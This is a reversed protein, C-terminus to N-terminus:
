NFTNKENKLNILFKKIISDWGYNIRVFKKGLINRSDVPNLAKKIQFEMERITRAPYIFKEFIFTDGLNSSVVRKGLALYERVKIPSRFKNAKDEKGFNIAVDSNSIINLTEEHSKYGLFEAKIKNKWCFKRYDELLPGDGVIKFLIKSNKKSIKEYVRLLPELHTAIGLFAAYVLTKMRQSNKINKSTSVKSIEELDIGQELNIVKSGPVKLGLCIYQLLNKNHTTIFNARRSVFIEFIKLIKSLIPNKEWYAYEVDDIDLIWKTKRNKIFFRPICSSPLPKASLIYDVNKIKKIQIVNSIMAAFIGLNFPWNPYYTKVLKVGDIKIKEKSCPDTPELYTVEQGNRSLYKAIARYRLKSGTLPSQLAGVILFNKRM